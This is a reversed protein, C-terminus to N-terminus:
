QAQLVKKIIDIADGNKIHGPSFELLRWKHLVALNSRMRDQEYGRGRVHRGQSHIAGQCEVLLRASPFAFDARFKRGPCWQYERQFSIGEAKLHFALREEPASLKPIKARKERQGSFDDDKIVNTRVRGASALRAQVQERLKEPVQTLTWRATM